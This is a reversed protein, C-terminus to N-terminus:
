EDTCKEARHRIIEGRIEARLVKINALLMTQMLVTNFVRQKDGIIQEVETVFTVLSM